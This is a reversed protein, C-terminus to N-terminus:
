KNTNKEKYKNNEGNRVHWTKQICLDIRCYMRQETNEM